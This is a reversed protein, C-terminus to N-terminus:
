RCGSSHYSGAYKGPSRRCRRFRAICHHNGRTFPAGAMITTNSTVTNAGVILENAATTTVFGSDAVNSNGSAGASVDFPNSQDVGSYELVRVDPKTASQNFTVTVTNASGGLINKAYYISQRLATGTTPGAALAYTNGVSDIVSQITATSDHWGVIVVNLNGATQPGPYTVPVSTTATQPTASAVQVFRIGQFAPPNLGYVQLLGTFLSAVYVKGNAVTPPTFKAYSGVDDRALNQTSDWLENTLNTADFARVVGPVQVGSAWLSISASSWM